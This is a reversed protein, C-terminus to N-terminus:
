GCGVEELQQICSEFQPGGHWEHLRYVRGDLLFMRLLVPEEIWELNGYRPEGEWFDVDDEAADACKLLQGRLGRVEAWRSEILAEEQPSPEPPSQNEYATAARSYGLPVNTM